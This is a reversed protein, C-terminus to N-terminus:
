CHFSVSIAQGALTTGTVTGRTRHGALTATATDRPDLAYSTGSYDLAMLVGKTYTGDKRAPPNGSGPVNGVDLGFYDPKQGTLQSTFVGININVYGPAVMCEGPTMTFTKGAVKVTATAPGCFTRRTVGHVTTVGATCSATRTGGGAATGVALALIGAALGVSVSSIREVRRTM